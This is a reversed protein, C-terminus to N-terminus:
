AARGLSRKVTKRRFCEPCSYIVVEFWQGSRFEMFELARKMKVNCEDCKPVKKMTAERKTTRRVRRTRHNNHSIVALWSGFRPLAIM